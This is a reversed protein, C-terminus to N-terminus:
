VKGHTMEENMKAVLMEMVDTAYAIEIPRDDIMRETLQQDILIGCCSRIHALHSVGSEADNDEGGWWAFLHRLIASYYTTAQMPHEAWNFAGYKEAGLQMVHAELLIAATSLNALSPKKSGAERKPDGTKGLIM